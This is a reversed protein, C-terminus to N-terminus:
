KIASIHRDMADLSRLIRIVQLQEATHQPQRELISILPDQTDSCSIATKHLDSVVLTPVASVPIWTQFHSDVLILDYENNLKDIASEKTNAVDVDYKWLWCAVEDSTSTFRDIYLIRM